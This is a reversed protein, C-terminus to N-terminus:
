AEDEQRRVGRRTGVDWAKYLAEVDEGTEAAQARASARLQMRKANAHKWRQERAKYRADADPNLVRWVTPHSLGVARSIALISMGEARLRRAENRWAPESM